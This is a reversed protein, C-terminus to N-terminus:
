KVSLSVCVNRERARMCVFTCLTVYINVKTVHPCKDNRLGPM